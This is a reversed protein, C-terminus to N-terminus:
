NIKHPMKTAVKLQQANHNKIISGKVVGPPKFDEGKFLLDKLGTFNKSFHNKQKKAAMSHNSISLM